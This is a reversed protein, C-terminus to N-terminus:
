APPKQLLLQFADTRNGNMTFVPVTAAHRVVFAATLTQIWAPAHHRLTVGEPLTFVGDNAPDGHLCSYSGAAVRGPQLYYDSLYLVGGPRLKAALHDMLAQQGANSPLCTLVALLVVAQVSGDPVPVAPSTIHRLQKALAPYQRQGRALLAASTDVGLLNAYGAEHLQQLVRGYGCGYDVLLDTPAVYAPLLALDLPHTFQQAEAVGDWYPYQNDLEM